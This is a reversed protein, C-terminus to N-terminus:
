VWGTKSSTSRTEDVARVAPQPDEPDQGEPDSVISAVPPEERGMLPLAKTYSPSSSLLRKWMVWGWDAGMRTATAPADPLIPRSITLATEWAASMVKTAAIARRWAPSSAPVTAPM